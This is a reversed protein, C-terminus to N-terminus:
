NIKKKRKSVALEPCSCSLLLVLIVAMNNM